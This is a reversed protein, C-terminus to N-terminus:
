ALMPDEDPAYSDTTSSTSQYDNPLRPEDPPPPAEGFLRDLLRGILGIADVQDDNVAGAGFMTLERVFADIWPAGAPLFLKGMAVRGQMARSRMAKDARGMTFQERAVGLDRERLRLSIFPGASKAIQDADEAWFLPKWKDVLDCFAEVWDVTTKRERWLDLLYINGDADVGVVVHVTWDGGGDTVAYDSAGYVTLWQPHQGHPYWRFWERKYYLGGDVQPRQQYLSAWTRQDEPRPSAKIPLYEEPRFYGPWLFEGPTRGVPDDDRECEMPVNVVFWDFGDRGRVWGSRGDYDEPLLLGALDGESWRTLIIIQWAGPKLRTRADNIYAEFTAQQFAPSDAEARGKVPDDILLGAARNGTVGARIGAAMYEAGNTLSWEDAASSEASITTGFIDAYRKQRVISRTRRGFKRALDSAYSLTIVPERPRNGMFFAPFTVTCFTSKAAGPPLLFMVRQLKGDYVAQLVSCILRHHPALDVTLPYFEECDEDDARVPVGPLDISTM